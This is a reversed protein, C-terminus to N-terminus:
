PAPLGATEFVATYRVTQARDIAHGNIVFDIAADVQDVTFVPM